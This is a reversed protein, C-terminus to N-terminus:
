FCCPALFKLQIANFRRMWDVRDASAPVCSALTAAAAAAAVEGHVQPRAHRSGLGSAPSGRHRGALRQRSTRISSVNKEVNRQVFKTVGDASFFIRLLYLGKFILFFQLQHGFIRFKKERFRVRSGIKKDSTDDREFFWRRFVQQSLILSHPLSCFLILSLSLSLSLFLTLTQSHLPSLPLSHSPCSLFLALSLSSFLTHTHM